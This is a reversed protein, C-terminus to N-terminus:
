IVEKVIPQLKTEEPEADAYQALDDEIIHSYVKLIMAPDDDVLAAVIPVPVNANLKRTIYTHRLTHFTVKGKDPDLDAKACAARITETAM